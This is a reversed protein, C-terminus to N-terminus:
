AGPGHDGMVEGWVREVVKRRNRLARTWPKGGPRNRQIVARRSYVVKGDISFRLVGGKRRPRITAGDELARAAKSGVTGVSVAGGALAHGEFVTDHPLHGHTRERLDEALAPGLRRPLEVRALELQDPVLLAEGLGDVTVTYLGPGRRAM